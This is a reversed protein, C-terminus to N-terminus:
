HLISGSGCQSPVGAGGCTEGSPCSGCDLLGGCGDAAAGCNAKQAACTLPICGGLGCKNAVGAGGCTQPATCTGCSLVGGCGDGVSGCQAGAAACTQPACTGTGCQNPVGGGGCTQGSPCVGCEKVEGCGDSIAGCAANAQACTRPTCSGGCQSPVGAGGCVQPATCVGCNLVGGCGDGIYGCTANAAACTRPTCTNGSCVGAVCSQTAPCTGCAITGGCGDGVYGCTATGCTGPTCTGTGCVNPVGGGGCIAPTACTGCEITGGCGDSIGGCQAGVDACSRPTCAPTGCINATGGGGCIAPSTCSGCNLTGGCGDAIIGCNAGQAGCTTITCYNGCQNAVGGGGCSAPATCTGCSLLGGCGDAVQGCNAGMQACTRPTCTAPPPPAGFSVCASLDFIMYELVKEQATMAATSCYSPFVQNGLNSAGAVHFGSYLIRGCINDADAQYPTNFAYQEVGSNKNIQTGKIKVTSDTYIFRDTGTAVSQVYDRPDTISIYGSGYTPSWANVNGLWTNFAQGKAFSTDVIGTTSSGNGDQTGGWTATTAYDSNKYLYTYSYHSAFMRGGANAWAHVAADYTSGHYDESGECDFVGIDYSNLKTVGNTVAFLDTLPAQTVYSSNSSYCQTTSGKAFRQCGMTGGNSRYMHIRGTGSPLTFESDSVGIQRLVCEIADVNGTVIAFHPINVSALNASTADNMNRPLRTQDVTLNVTTCRTVAPITVARRWKGMKVVLPFNVGAPVNTLTFAGDAGTLAAAIPSGLDEDECRVCSAGQTIAPLTANPVYVVANNMPDTGNPAYVKGTLSTPNTKCSWDIKPCLGTCNPDVPTGCVSPSIGGCIDTGTCTGCSEVIGGCGDSIPGCNAGVDACTLKTCPPSGCVSPTGGGGCTNPLTCGGCDVTGGCGDSQVGCMGQSCVAAQTKPVCVPSGCANPLGGGGCTDPSTCSGCNLTDGCGDAVTGCETNLSQCTRPQCTAAGCVGPTGGGGCTQPLQCTACQVFGGCGDSIQGCANSCSAATLPVCTPAGQGCVDPTGGGGCTEGGTCTAGCNQLIGGCGDALAGCFGQPQGQMASDCTQPTCQVADCKGATLLGCVKDSSCSFGCDITSGCGDSVPGCLDPTSAYNDCTLPVCTPTTAQCTGDVCLQGAIPCASTASSADVADPWCNIIGGCGDGQQGCTKGLEACTKPVCTNVPQGCHSPVGAGGCTAPATCGGCQVFSGCGDAVPGCENTDCTTKCQINTPGADTIQFSAGGEAVPNSGGVSSTGDTISILPKGGCAVALLSTVIWGAVRFSSIHSM